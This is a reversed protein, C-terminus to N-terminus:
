LDPLILGTFAKPRSIFEVEDLARRNLHFRELLEGGVRRIEAKLSSSSYFQWPKVTIGYGAHGAELRVDVFPWLPHPHPEVRWRYGPYTTALETGFLSALEEAATLKKWDADNAVQITTEATVRGM